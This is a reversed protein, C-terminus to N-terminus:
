QAACKRLEATFKDGSELFDRINNVLAARKSEFDYAADGASTAGATQVVSPMPIGVKVLSMRVSQILALTSQLSSATSACEMPALKARAPLTLALLLACVAFRIM